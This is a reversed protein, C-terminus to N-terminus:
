RRPWWFRVTVEVQLLGMLQSYDLYALPNVNDAGAMHTFAADKISRGTAQKVADSWRKGLFSRM